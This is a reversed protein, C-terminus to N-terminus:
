TSGSACGGKVMECCMRGLPIRLKGRLHRVGVSSSRSTRAAFTHRSCSFVRSPRRQQASLALVLRRSPRTSIRWVHPPMLKWGERKNGTQEEKKKARVSQVSCQHPRRPVKRRDKSRVEGRKERENKKGKWRPVVIGAGGITNKVICVV